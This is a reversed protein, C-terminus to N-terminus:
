ETGKEFEQIAYLAEIVSDHTFPYDKCEDLAAECELLAIRVTKLISTMQKITQPNAANRFYTQALLVDQIENPSQTSYDIPEFAADALQELQDLKSM